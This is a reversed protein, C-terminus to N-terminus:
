SESGTHLSFNNRRKNQSHYKMQFFCRTYFIDVRLTSDQAIYIRYQRCVHVSAHMLWVIELWKPGLVYWGWIVWSMEARVNGGKVLNAGYKTLLLWFLCFLVYVKNFLVYYVFVSVYKIQKNDVLKKWIQIILFCSVSFYLCKDDVVILTITLSL